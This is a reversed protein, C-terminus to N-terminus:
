AQAIDREKSRLGDALAVLLGEIQPADKTAYTACHVEHDGMAELMAAEASAPHEGEGQEGERSTPFMRLLVGVDHNCQPGLTM